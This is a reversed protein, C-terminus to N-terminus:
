VIQILTNKLVHFIRIFYSDNNKYNMNASQILLFGKDPFYNQIKFVFVIMYNSIFSHIPYNGEKVRNVQLM